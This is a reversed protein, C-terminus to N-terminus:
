TRGSAWEFPPEKRPNRSARPMRRCLSRIVSIRRAAPSEMLISLSVRTMPINSHVHQYQCRPTATARPFGSQVQMELWPDTLHIQFSSTLIQDVPLATHFTQAVTSLTSHFTLYTKM